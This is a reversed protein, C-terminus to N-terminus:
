KHGEDSGQVAKEGDLQKWSEEGGSGQFRM